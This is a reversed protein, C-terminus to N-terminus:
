KGNTEEEIAIIAAPVAYTKDLVDEYVKELCLVASGVRAAKYGLYHIAFAFAQATMEDDFIYIKNM